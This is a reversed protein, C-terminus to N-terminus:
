ESAKVPAAEKISTKAIAIALTIYFFILMMNHKSWISMFAQGDVWCAIPVTVVLARAYRDVGKTAAVCYVIFSIGGIFAVFIALGVFGTVVFADLFINHPSGYRLVKQERLFDPGDIGLGIVPSHELVYNVYKFGGDIRRSTNIKSFALINGSSIYSVSFLAALFLLAVVLLVFKKKKVGFVLGIYVAASFATVIIATRGHSFFAAIFFLFLLFFNLNNKNKLAFYFVFGSGIAVFNHLSHYMWYEYKVNKLHKVSQVINFDFFYGIVVVLSILISSIFIIRIAIEQNEKRRLSHLFLYESVLCIFLTMLAVSFAKVSNNLSSFDSPLTNVVLMLIFYFVVFFVFRSYKIKFIEARFFAVMLIILCFFHIYFLARGLYIFLPMMAVFGSAFGDKTFKGFRESSVLEM